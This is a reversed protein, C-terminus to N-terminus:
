TPKHDTTFMWQIGFKDVLMGFKGGWFADEFPMIMQGGEILSNYIAFVRDEQANISLSFSNGRSFEPNMHDSMMLANGDFELTAHMILNKADEPVQMVGPPADSFRMLTTVEAKLIGKYLDIAQECNGQFSLYSNLRM